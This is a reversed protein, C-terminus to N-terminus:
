YNKMLCILLWHKISRHYYLFFIKLLEQDKGVLFLQLREKSKSLRHCVKFSIECVVRNNETTFAPQGILQREWHGSSDAESFPVIKRGLPYILILKKEPSVEIKEPEGFLQFFTKELYDSKLFKQKEEAERFAANAEYAQRWAESDQNDVAGTQNEDVWRKERVGFVPEGVEKLVWRPERSRNERREQFGSYGQRNRAM